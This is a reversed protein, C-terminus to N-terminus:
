NWRQQRITKAHFQFTKITAKKREIIESSKQTKELVHNSIEILRYLKEDDIKEAKSSAGFIKFGAEYFNDILLALYREPSGEIFADKEYESITYM